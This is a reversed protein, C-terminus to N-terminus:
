CTRAKVFKEFRNKQCALALPLVVAGNKNVGQKQLTFAAGPWRFVNKFCNGLRERIRGIGGVRDESRGAKRM